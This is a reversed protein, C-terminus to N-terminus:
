PCSRSPPTSTRSRGNGRRIDDRRYFTAGIKKPNFVPEVAADQLEKKVVMFHRGRQRAIAFLSVYERAFREVERAPMM